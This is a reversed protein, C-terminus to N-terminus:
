FHVKGTERKEPKGKQSYDKKLITKKLNKKESKGKKLRKTTLNTM